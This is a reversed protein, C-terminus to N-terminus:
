KQTTNTRRLYLFVDDGDKNDKVDATAVIFDDDVHINEGCLVMM